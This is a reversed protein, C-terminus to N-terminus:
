QALVTKMVAWAGSEPDRVLEYLAGGSVDFLDKRVAGRFHHFSPFPLYLRELVKGRADLVLMEHRGEKERHTTVCLRGDSRRIEHIRPFTEPFRANAKAFEYVQESRTRRVEELLRERDAESVPVAEESATLDITAITKGYFDFVSIFFGKETDSVYIEGDGAAVEIRHPLPSFGGTGGTQNWDFLGEYLNGLPRLEGDFLAVVCKRDPHDDVTRIYRDGAPFLKTIHRPDFDSFDSYPLAKLFEGNRTYLLSKMFDSIVVSEATIWLSPLSQLQWPGDDNGGIMFRLAFPEVSYVRVVHDDGAVFLDNGEVAMSFPAQVGELSGIRGSVREQTGRCAAGTGLAFLIIFLTSRQL